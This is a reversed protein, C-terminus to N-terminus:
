TGVSRFCDAFPRLDNSAALGPSACDVGPRPLQKNLFTRVVPWPPSLGSEFGEPTM